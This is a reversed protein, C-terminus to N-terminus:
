IFINKQTEEQKTLSKDNKADPKLHFVLNEDVIINEAHTYYANHSRRYAICTDYISSSSPGAAVYQLSRMIADTLPLSEFSSSWTKRQNNKPFCDKQVNWGNPEQKRTNQKNNQCHTAIQRGHASNLIRYFSWFPASWSNRLTERVKILNRHWQPKENLRILIMSPSLHLSIYFIMPVKYSKWITKIHRICFENCGNLFNKMKWELWLNSAVTKCM